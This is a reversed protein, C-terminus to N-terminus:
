KMSVSYSKTITGAKLSATTISVPELVNIKFKRSSKGYSNKATVTFSSKGAKIPTGSILGDSNLTLGKPFSGKHTWTIPTAGSATLQLSYPQGTVGKALTETKIEPPINEEEEELAASVEVNVSATLGRFKATLTTSGEKLGLICGNDNVRAYETSTWQTGNLPSSVDYYRGDSDVAYLGAPTESNVSTYMTSAGSFNISIIDKNGVDSLSTISVTNSVHISTGVGNPNHSFCFAEMTGIDSSAFVIDLEFKRGTNDSPPILFIKCDYENGVACLIDEKKPNDATVTFKVSQERDGSLSFVSPSVDLKLARIFAFGESTESESSSTSIQPSTVQSSATKRGLIQFNINCSGKLISAIHEGVDNQRCISGHEYNRGSYERIGSLNGLASSRSVVIDHNESGFFNIAILKPTWGAVDYTISAAAIYPNVKAAFKPFFKTLFIPAYHMGTSLMDRFNVSHKGATKIKMLRAIIEAILDWRISDLVNGSIAHIPVGSPFIYDRKNQTIMEQVASSQYFWTTPLASQALRTLVSYFLKNDVHDFIFSDIALAPKLSWDAWPTGHHPVAVAVLRRVMGKKYSCVSWNNGDDSDKREESLYKEAMLGGMGFAIIDAKTCVIGETDYKKFMATLKKFLDNDDFGLTEQPGKFTEYDWTDIHERDFNNMILGLWVGSNKHIGFTVESDDFMGPILIVPAAEIKLELDDETVEGDEDTFKVHVKFTDSPFNKLKSEPFREPAILVASVQHIDSGMDSTSLQDSASLEKRSLSELKAGIDENLNFSVTGPKDTQVRLILRSNGDAALGLKGYDSYNLGSIDSETLANGNINIYSNETMDSIILGDTNFGSRELASIIKTITVDMLDNNPSHTIYNYRLKTIPESFIIIGTAKNYSVPQPSISDADINEPHSVYNRMNVEYGESVAKVKLGEM